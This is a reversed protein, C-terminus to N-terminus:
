GGAVPPFAGVRDGDRLRWKLTAQQGNVMVIKVESVPVGIGALVDEVTSGEPVELDLPEGGALDPRYKQLSAFVRLEVRM